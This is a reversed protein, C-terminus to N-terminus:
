VTDNLYKAIKKALRWDGKSPAHSRRAVRHLAFAIGLRTCRAICLYHWDSVSVDAYDAEGLGVKVSRLLVGEGDGDEEGIPARVPASEVLRFKKLMDDIVNEHTLKYGTEEDYTVTYRCFKSVVGLNKLEVVQM